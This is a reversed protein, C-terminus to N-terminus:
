SNDAVLQDSDWGCDCKFLFHRLNVFLMDPLAGELRMPKKCAPCTPPRIDPPSRNSEVESM